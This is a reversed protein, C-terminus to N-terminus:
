RTDAIVLYPALQEAVVRQEGWHYLAVSEKGGFTFVVGLLAVTYGIVCEVLVVNVRPHRTRLSAVVILPLVLYLGIHCQLLVQTEDRLAQCKGTSEAEVSVIFVGDLVM